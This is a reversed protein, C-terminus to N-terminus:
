GRIHRYVTAPLLLQLTMEGPALGGSLTAWAAKKVQLPVSKATGTLLYSALESLYPEHGVLAVTEDAPKVGERIDVVLQPYDDGALADLYQVRRGKALRLALREATQAARTYPSSFLRDFTVDLTKLVRALTKAQERGKADLPRLSDDPYRPGRDGASAHRVLYLTEVM